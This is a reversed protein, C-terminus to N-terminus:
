ILLEPLLNPVWFDSSQSNEIYEESFWAHGKIGWNESWSNRIYFQRNGKIRRIGTIVQAHRGVSVLPFDWVKSENGNWYLEYEKSVATGFVVPLNARIAKEIAECRENGDEDIKYYSNILNDEGEKYAELIPQANVKSEDYQWTSELAVGYRKFSDFIFRIQTGADIKQANHYLRANYYAFLRSLQVINGKQGMLIELADVASNGCCSSLQGQNSIPTYETILYQNDTNMSALKTIKSQVLSFMLDKNSPEEKIWGYKM